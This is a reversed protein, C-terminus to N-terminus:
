AVDDKIEWANRIIPHKREYEQKLEKAKGLFQGITPAFPETSDFLFADLAEWVYKDEIRSLGREWIDLYAEAEAKSMNVFSKKFNSKLQNLVKATEERTLIVVRGKESQQEKGM